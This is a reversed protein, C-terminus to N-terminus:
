FRFYIFPNYVGSTLSMVSMSFLLVFVGLHAIALGGKLPVAYNGNTARWLMKKIAPWAPFAAAIAIPVLGIMAGDLYLRVHHEEGSGQGMGFMASIFAGAEGLTETRFIPWNEPRNQKQIM